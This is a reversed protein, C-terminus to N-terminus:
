HLISEVLPRHLDQLAAWAIYWPHVFRYLRTQGRTKLIYRAALWEEGPFFLGRAMGGLARPQDVLLAYLMSLKVSGPQRYAGQLVTKPDLPALRELIDLQLGGPKLADLVHSPVPTDLLRRACRLGRYVVTQVGFRGARDILRSWSPAGDEARVVRDMDAYSSLAWEYGHNLTLHLCLCILTDEVSLQWTEAACLDLPRASAWLADPEVAFSARCWDTKVLHHQVDLKTTRDERSRLWHLGGGFRREFPVKHIPLLDPLRFGLSALVGVSAPSISNWSELVTDGKKIDEGRYRVNEGKMVERFVLISKGDRQVDEKIVVADAGDPM